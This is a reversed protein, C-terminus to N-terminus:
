EATLLLTIIKDGSGRPLFDRGVISELVSSKGSSQFMGIYLPFFSNFFSGISFIMISILLHQLHSRHNSDQFTISDMCSLSIMFFWIGYGCRAECERNKVRYVSLELVLNCATQGEDISKLLLDAMVVVSTSQIPCM